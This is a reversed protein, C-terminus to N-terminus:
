VTLHFSIRSIMNKHLLGPKVSSSVGVALVAENPQCSIWQVDLLCACHSTPPHCSMDGFEM